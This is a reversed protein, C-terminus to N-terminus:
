LLVLVLPNHVEHTTTPTGGSRVAISPRGSLEAGGCLPWLCFLKKPYERIVWVDVRVEVVPIVHKNYVTISAEKSSFPSIIQVNKLHPPHEHKTIVCKTARILLFAKEINEIPGYCSYFQSHITM